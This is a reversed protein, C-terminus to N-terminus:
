YRGWVKGIVIWKTLIMLASAIIMTGGSYFGLGEFGGNTKHIIADNIQPGCISSVAAILLFMGVRRGVDSTDGLMYIPSVFGAVYTGNLFGHVFAIVIFGVESRVYPWAFCVFASFFTTPAIFNLAGFRDNIYGGIVRGSVSGASAIGVLYFSINPSIGAAVASANLYTIMTYIGLFAFFTTLGYAAFSPRKFAAFNFLGGSHEKPPFLTALTLNPVVLICLFILALIRMTWPFGVKPILQKVTIPFVTGGISAGIAIFGTARGRKRKFWHPVLSLAPGLVMGCSFGLLIGQCLMFHWYKTCQGILVTSIVILTSSILFPIKVIGKDLLWGAFIVPLLSQTTGIWASIRVCMKYPAHDKLLVQEYYAQFISWSHIYGFSECLCVSLHGLVVLWARLGGDPAVVIVPTGSTFNENADAPVEEEHVQVNAKKIGAKSSYASKPEITHM